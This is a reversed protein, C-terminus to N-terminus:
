SSTMTTLGIGRTGGGTRATFFKSGFLVRAGGCNEGGRLGTVVGSLMEVCKLVDDPDFEGSAGIVGDLPLALEADGKPEACCEVALGRVSSGSVGPLLCSSLFVSSFCFLLSVSSCLLLTFRCSLFASNSCVIRKKTKRQKKFHRKIEAERRKEEKSKKESRQEELKSYEWRELLCDRQSEARRHQQEAQPARGVVPKRLRGLYGM